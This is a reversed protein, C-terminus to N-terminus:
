TAALEQMRELLAEEGLSGVHVDVVEGSDDIFAFAPQSTIGFSRWISGDDDILHEIGGTDTDAVFGVMEPGEGRGAVGVLRVDDGIGAVATNVDPAQARCVTCWPAWFWLVTDTGALSAGDLEGGGLQAATFDLSSMGGGGGDAGGGAATGADDSSCAAAVLMVALALVLVPRSIARM